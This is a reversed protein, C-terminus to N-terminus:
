KNKKILRQYIEPNEELFKPNNKRYWELTKGDHVVENEKDLLEKYLKPNNKLVDPAYLRFDALTWGDYKKNPDILSTLRVMKPTIAILEAM